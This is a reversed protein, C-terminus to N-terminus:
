KSAFIEKIAAIALCSIGGLELLWNMQMGGINWGLLQDVHHFSTARILIFIVLFTLGLLPLLFHKIKTGMWQMIFMVSACSIAILGIIFDKQVIRRKEYWGQEIAMKKGILTFWSQLDLQKNIGLLVLIFALGWWILNNKDNKQGCKFCLFATIFYFFVTLWGMITPDGNGPKWSNDVVIILYKIM